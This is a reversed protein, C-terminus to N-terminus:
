DGSQSILGDSTTIIKKNEIVVKLKSIMEKTVDERSQNSSVEIITREKSLRKVWYTLNEDIKRQMEENEYFEKKDSRKSIRELAVEVPIRFVITIDPILVESGYNHLEYLYDPSMGQMMQYALTSIDYRDCIVHAYKLNERIIKTHEKRDKVFLETASIDEGSRLKQSIERGSETVKTPNRHIHIFSYKNGFLDGKGNRIYSVLADIQTGKGSGDIGEFTIFLGREAM